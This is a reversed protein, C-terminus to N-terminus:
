PVSIDRSRYTEIGNSSAPVHSQLEVHIQSFAPLGNELCGPVVNGRDCALLQTARSVLLQDLLASYFDLALGLATVVFITATM